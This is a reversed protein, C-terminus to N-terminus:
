YLTKMLLCGEVEREKGEGGEREIKEGEAM